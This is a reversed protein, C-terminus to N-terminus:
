VQFRSTYLRAIYEAIAPDIQRLRARTAKPWSSWPDNAGIYARLAEAFYEDIRTAAYPTIFRRAQAFAHRVATSCESHYTGEGIACDLAHGFEHAVTMATCSRLYMTREDVVFLGAPPHAWRDVRLNLRQLSPSLEHYTQERTLVKIRIGCGAVRRVAHRGFRAATRIIAARQEPPADILSSLLAPISM